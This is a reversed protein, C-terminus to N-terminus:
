ARVSRPLLNTWVREIYGLCEERTGHQGTDQWGPPLPRDVPWTSYQEEDNVVVRHGATGAGDM